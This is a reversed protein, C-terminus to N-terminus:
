TRMGPVVFGLTAPKMTDIVLAVVMVATLMWHAPTLKTDESTEVFVETQHPEHRKRRSVPLLGVGAIGVGAVILAMGLIMNWGMPMGALHYNMSKADAFMQVHPLIGITVAACGAFFIWSSTRGALFPLSMTMQGGDPSSFVSEFIRVGSQKASPRTTTDGNEAVREHRLGLAQKLM